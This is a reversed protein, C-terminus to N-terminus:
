KKTKYKKGKKRIANFWNWIISSNFFMTNQMLITERILKIKLM